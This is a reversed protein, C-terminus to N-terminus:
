GALSRLSGALLPVVTLLGFAPLICVVLPLLLRVPVRRAAQEARHRRATRAEMALRDLVPGLPTGHRLHDGLAHALTACTDGLPELAVLLADARVQGATVREEAEDLAAAIVQPARPAVLPLALPLPLGAGNALRLLDIVDPLGETIEGDRRRRARAIRWRPEIARWGVVALPAPPLLPTILLGVALAVTTTRGGSTPTGAPSGAPAVLRDLARGPASWLEPGTTPRGCRASRRRGGFPVLLLVSGATVLALVAATVPREARYPIDM